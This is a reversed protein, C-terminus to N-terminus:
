SESFGMWEKIMTERGGEREMRLEAPDDERWGHCISRQLGKKERLVMREGAVAAAMVAGRRGQELEGGVGAAANGEPEV